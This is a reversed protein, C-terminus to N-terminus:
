NHLIIIIKIQRNNSFVITQDASTKEVIRYKLIKYKISYYINIFYVNAINLVRCKNYIIHVLVPNQTQNSYWVWFGLGLTVNFEIARRM